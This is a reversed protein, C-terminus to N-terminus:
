AFIGIPIIQATPAPIETEVKQATFGSDTLSAFASELLGALGQINGIPSKRLLGIGEEADAPVVRTVKGFIRFTGDIADNMTPDVFYATEATLVFRSAGCEAILDEAGDAAIAALLTDILKAVQSMQGSGGSAGTRAARGKRRRSEGAQNAQGALAEFAEMLPILERITSLVTILPSRRLVAQMEVFDGAAIETLDQACDTLTTVLERRILEKRLRTFLSTPTHVLEETTVEGSQNTNDRHGEADFGLGLFLFPNGVGLGAKGALGSSQASNSSEQITTM